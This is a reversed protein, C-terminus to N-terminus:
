SKLLNKNEEPTLYHQQVDSMEYKGETKKM